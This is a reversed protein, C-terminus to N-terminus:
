IPDDNQEDISVYIDFLENVDADESSDGSFDRISTKRM